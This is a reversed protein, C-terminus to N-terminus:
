YKIPIVLKDTKNIYGQRYVVDEYSYKMVTKTASVWALEKSPNGCDEYKAAVM